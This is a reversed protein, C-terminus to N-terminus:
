DGTLTKCYEESEPQRTQKVFQQYLDTVMDDTIPTDNYGDRDKMDSFKKLRIPIQTNFLTGQSKPRNAAYFELYEKERQKYEQLHLESIQCM